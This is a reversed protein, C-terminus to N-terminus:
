QCLTGFSFMEGPGPFKGATFLSETLPGGLRQLSFTSFLQSYVNLDAGLPSSYLMIVLVKAEDHSDKLNTAIRLGL